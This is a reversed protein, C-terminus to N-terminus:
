SGKLSLPKSPSSTGMTPTPIPTTCLLRHVVPIWLARYRVALVVALVAATIYVVIPHDGIWIMCSGILVAAGGLIGAEEIITMFSVLVPVWLSLVASLICAGVVTSGIVVFKSGTSILLSPLPDVKISKPAVYAPPNEASKAVPKDLVTPDAAIALPTATPKPLDPYNETVTIVDTALHDAVKPKTDEQALQYAKAEARTDAVVQPMIRDGCGAILVVLLLIYFTVPRLTLQMLYQM